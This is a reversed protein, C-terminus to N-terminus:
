NFYIIKGKIEPLEDFSKIKIQKYVGLTPYLPFKPHTEIINGKITTLNLKKLNRVTIYEWVIKDNVKRCIFKHSLKKAYFVKNIGGAITTSKTKAYAPMVTTTIVEINSTSKYHDTILRDMIGIINRPSNPWTYLRTLEIGHNPNFGKALLADKRFPPSQKVSEITEIAFPLNDDRFYLGFADGNARDTHIYHLDRTFNIVLDNQYIQRFDVPISDIINDNENTKTAILYKKNSGEVKRWQLLYRDQEKVTKLIINLPLKSKRMRGRLVLFQEEVVYNIIDFNLKFESIIKLDLRPIKQWDQYVGFQEFYEELLSGRIFLESPPFTTLRFLVQHELDQPDFLFDAKEIIENLKPAIQRRIYKILSHTPWEKQLNIEPFILIKRSRILKRLQKGQLELRERETSKEFIIKKICKIDDNKLPFNIAKNIDLRQYSHNKDVYYIVNDKQRINNMFVPSISRNEIILKNIFIKILRIARDVVNPYKLIRLYIKTKATGIILLKTIDKQINNQDASFVHLSGDVIRLKINNIIKDFFDGQSVLIKKIKAKPMSKKGRYKAYPIKLKKFSIIYGVAKIILKLNIVVM